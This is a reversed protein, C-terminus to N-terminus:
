ATAGHDIRRCWEDKPVALKAYVSSLGDWGLAEIESTIAQLPRATEAPSDNKALNCRWCATVLNSPANTGGATVPVIHDVSAWGWQFLPLIAGAKGNPHYYGHGPSMQDFVKLAPAFFVPALCYRCHWADRRWIALQEAKSFGKRM